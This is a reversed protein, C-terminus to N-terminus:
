NSSLTLTVVASKCADQNNATDAFSLLGTPSLTVVGPTKGKLTTDFTVPSITFDSALCLANSTTVVSTITGLHLTSTGANQATFTVPVSNGPALGPDFTATLVLTGNAAANAASGTGQGTTSWYAFAGGGGVLLLAAAVLAIGRVRKPKANGATELPSINTTM